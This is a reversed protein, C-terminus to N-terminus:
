IDLVFGSLSVAVASRSYSTLPQKVNTTTM